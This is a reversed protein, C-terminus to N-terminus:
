AGVIGGFFTLQLVAVILTLIVYGFNPDITIAVASM